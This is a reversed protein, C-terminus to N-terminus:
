KWVKALEVMADADQAAGIVDLPVQNESHDKAARRGPGSQLVLRFEYARSPDFGLLENWTFCLPDSTRSFPNIDVLWVRDLSRPIYVDLICADTPFESPAFVDAFFGDIQLRLEPQLDPLFQYYNPDRQSVAIIKRQRVFVRFELATNFPIYQRLVLEFTSPEVDSGTDDYALHLDHAIHSSANLVLYVDSADTCRLVNNPLMWKADKPASWNMKPSVPGLRAIAAVVQDHMSAFADTIGGSTNIPELMSDDSDGGSAGDLKTHKRASAADGADSSIGADAHLHLVEADEWDSYENDSNAELQTVAQPLRISESELYDVFPQPAPIVVSDTVYNRFIPYWASYRCSDVDAVLPQVTEFAHTAM